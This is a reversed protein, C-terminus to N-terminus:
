NGFFNQFMESFKDAAEQMKGGILPRLMAPIEVDLNTSVETANEDVPKLNIDIFFPVPSNQAQMRMRQPAIREVIKFVLEGVGPANIVIEDDTFRVDGMQKRAEEPLESLREQFSKLNSIRDFFTQAPQNVTVAKGKYTAM